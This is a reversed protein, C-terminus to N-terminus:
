KPLTDVAGETCFCVRMAHHLLGPASLSARGQRMVPALFGFCARSGACCPIQRNGWLRRVITVAGLDHGDGIDRLTGPHAFAGYRPHQAIMTRDRLQRALFDELGGGVQIIDGIADGASQRRHGGLVELSIPITM